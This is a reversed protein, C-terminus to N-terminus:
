HKHSKGGRFSLLILGIGVVVLIPIPWWIQGTFPLEKDRQKTKNPIVTTPKRPQANLPSMKETAEVNLKGDKPLTLLFPKMLEYGPAAQTQLFLYLGQPLEEIVVGTAPITEIDKFVPASAALSQLRSAYEANLQDLNADDLLLNAASFVPQIQYAKPGDKYIVTAVQYVKLNGGEVIQGAYTPEITVSGVQNIDLVSARVIKGGLVLSFVMAWLLFYKKM